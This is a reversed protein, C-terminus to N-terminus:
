KPPLFPLACIRASVPNGSGKITVRGGAAYAPALVALAIARKLAPSYVSRLTRGIEVDGSFVPRFPAPEVSEIEVGILVGSNKEGYGERAPLGLMAPVPELEEPARAPRFDAGVIPVGSELMLAERATEGALVLGFLLGTRYLRDFVLIADDPACTIEFGGLVSVRSVSVNLGRWILAGHQGQSFRLAAELEAAALVAFAFPGALLLVAKEGIEDRVVAEFRPAAAEFWAVDTDHALLLYNAEAVRELVGMGRLAGAENCWYVRASEGAAMEAADVGFGTRVLNAAGLGHIRLRQVASIDCLIASMRAALVEQNTDGYAAPVTFGARQVWANGLNHEATRVHFPTPRITPLPASM